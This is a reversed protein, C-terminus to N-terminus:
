PKITEGLQDAADVRAGAAFFQMILSLWTLTLIALLAGVLLVPAPRVAAAAGAMAAGVALTGPVRELLRDPYDDPNLARSALGVSLLAVAISGGLLWATAEPTRSDEAHEVLSVMAAGAAAISTTLPLHIYTWTALRVASASPVRRGLADFYNWWLGMGVALGLMAVTVT